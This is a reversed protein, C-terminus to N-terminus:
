LGLVLKRNALPVNNAFEFCRGHWHHFGRNGILSRRHGFAYCTISLLCSTALAIADILVASSNAQLFALHEAPFV